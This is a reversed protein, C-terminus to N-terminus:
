IPLIDLQSHVSADTLNTVQDMHKAWVDITKCFVVSAVELRKDVPNNFM